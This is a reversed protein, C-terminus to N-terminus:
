SSRRLSMKMAYLYLLLLLPLVSRQAAAVAAAARTATSLRSSETLHVLYCRQYTYSKSKRGFIRIVCRDGVGFRYQTSSSSSSLCEDHMNCLCISPITYATGCARSSCVFMVLTWIAERKQQTMM